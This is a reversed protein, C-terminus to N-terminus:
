GETVAAVQHHGRIRGGSPLHRLRHRRPPRPDRASGRHDRRDQRRPQRDIEGHAPSNNFFDITEPTTELFCAPEPEIALTVTRGKYRHINNVHTALKRVNEAYAEVVANSTVNPKFGLPPTQISPNVSEPAIDAVITAVNM